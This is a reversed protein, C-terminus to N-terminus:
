GKPTQYSVSTGSPVTIFGGITNDIEMHLSKIKPIVFILIM